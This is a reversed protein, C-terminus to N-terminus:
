VISPVRGRPKGGVQGTGTQKILFYRGLQAWADLRNPSRQGSDPVWSTLEAELKALTGVHRFRGKEALAGVPEARAWKSKRSTVSDLRPRRKCLKFAENMTERLWQGTMNDEFIVVDIDYEDIKHALLPAWSGPTGRTSCDEIVEAISNPGTGIRQGIIVGVEDATDRSSFGPDISMAKLTASTSPHDQRWKQITAAALLAGEVDEVMIGDLEQMGLNTGEYLSLLEEVVEASLNAINDRMTGHSYHYVGPHEGVMKMLHQMLEVRKPTGTVFTQPQFGNPRKIRTAMRTNTWADMGFRMEAPEDLWAGMLNPGRVKGPQMAHYLRLRSGNAFDVQNVSGRWTRLEEPIIQYLNEELCETIGHDIQPVVLAYSGPETCIRHAIWEAGAKSKGSGRGGIYCSVSKREHPIQAPRAAIESWAAWRAVGIQRMVEVAAQDVDRRM